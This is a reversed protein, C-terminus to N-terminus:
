AGHYDINQVKLAHSTIFERRKEVKEGMLDRFLQEAKAADDLTVQLLTRKEPDLTTDWLQDGDMEGLGKFRTVSLGREGLRRIESVLERLQALQKRSDGSELVFRVPPERGALRPLPVLDKADLGFEKLRELQRNIGRVEHLEQLFFQVASEGNTSPSGGAKTSGVEAVVLDRGLRAAESTRFQDVEDATRFWHEKGALVVHHTPLGKEGAGALLTNLNLGRREVIQLMSELEGLITVLRGIDTGEFDRAPVAEGRFLVLKTDKLGRDMLERNMEEINRIYRVQKKHTVSFLPPRAVYIYGNEVLKRMQRFFFTLLLTRIHQGDVDADTLIIIKGYRLKTTDEVNGIDIGIASILNTIEENGLLKEIRAKEVNLVKGRMPLLAQHERDRGNDASGGASQGEVLFLESEDRNRTTCDMLKGPLGGGALANKRATIAEKAKRAAVRAEAAFIVKKIIREAEKPNEEMYTSLFQGVAAQVAGDVEPNNLRVKTQSEFQPNPLQVSVVATLGERFDAGELKLDGKLLENKQAYGGLTRTMASRFGTLHTGGVPNYANNAYCRVQESESRTYQLAVEIKITDIERLLYIPKHEGEEGKNLYEVFEAIGGHFQFRVERGDREDVLHILVGRNLFALERFREELADFEFTAEHFITPDPRFTISTGTHDSAGIDKLETSAIGREYQQTYTRGNRRVRAETWESLATVAKSGMGHLGASVKYAKNDFKGSTGLMTMVVQLTPVKEEPHEEVPIGRGDDDVTCSGDVHLRITIASCYGALAEDISNYVLEYVLHHLGSTSTNGIYMGPRHRIHAANQLHQINAVGYADNAEMPTVVNTEAM